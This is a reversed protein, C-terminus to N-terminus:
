LSPLSYLDHELVCYLILHGFRHAMPPWFIRRVNRRLPSPGIEFSLVDELILTVRLEGFDYAGRVLAVILVFILHFFVADERVYVM